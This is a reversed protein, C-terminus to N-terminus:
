VAPGGPAGPPRGGPPVGGPPPGGPGGPGGGGPGGGEPGTLDPSSGLSLDVILRADAEVWGGKNRMTLMLQSGSNSTTLGLSSAGQYIGDNSNLTDRQGRTNYPPLKYIEDSFADDLFFQSTFEYTQSPGNFTTVKVHMHVARGQYWGPYITLFYVNGQRDTPQYGRLFKKGAANQASIDSYVGQANCHWLDVYAGTLPVLNCTVLQSVNVALSMPMGPQVSGDLDYRIDRRNLQEDVFYPGETLSPSSVVSCAAQAWLPTHTILPYGLAAGGLVGLIERRGRRRGAYNM